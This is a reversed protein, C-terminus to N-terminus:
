SIQKQNENGEGKNELWEAYEAEFDRGQILFLRKTSELFKIKRELQKIYAQPLNKGEDELYARMRVMKAGSLDIKRMNYKVAISTATIQKGEELIAWGFLLAPM